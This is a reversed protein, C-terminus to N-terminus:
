DLLRHRITKLDATAVGAALLYTEADFGDLTALVAAHATTGRQALMREIAPRDDQRGMANFLAKL